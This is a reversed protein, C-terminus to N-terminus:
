QPLNAVSLWRLKPLGPAWSASFETRLMRPAGRASFCIPKSYLVCACFFPGPGNKKQARRKGDLGVHRVAHSGDCTARACNLVDHFCPRGNTWLGGSMTQVQDTTAQNAFPSDRSLDSPQPRKSQMTRRKCLSPVWPSCQWRLTCLLFTHREVWMHAM